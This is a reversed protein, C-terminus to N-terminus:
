SAASGLDPVMKARFRTLYSRSRGGGHIVGQIVWTMFSRVAGAPSGGGGAAPGARGRWNGGACGGPAAARSRCPLLTQFLSPSGACAMLGVCFVGGISIGIRLPRHQGLIASVESVSRSPRRRCLPAWESRCQRWARRWSRVYRWRRRLQRGSWLTCSTLGSCSWSTGSRSTPM